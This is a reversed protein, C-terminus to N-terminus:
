LAFTDFGIQNFVIHASCRCTQGADPTCNVTLAKNTNDAFLGIAWVGSHNDSVTTVADDHITVTGGVNRIVGRHVEYLYDGLTGPSGANLVMMVHAEYGLVCDTPLDFYDGNIALHATAAVATDSMHVIGLQNDGRESFYNAAFAKEAFRKTGAGQGFAGSLTGKLLNSWGLVFAYNAAITNGTGHCFLRNGAVTNGTGGVISYDGNSSNGSGSILSSSGAVVTNGKGIITNYDGAYNNVPSALQVLNHTGKIQLEHLDRVASLTVKNTTGGVVNWIPVLDNIGVASATLDVIRM